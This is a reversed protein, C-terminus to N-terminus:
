FYPQRYHHPQKTILSDRTLGQASDTENAHHKTGRGVEGVGQGLFSNKAPLGPDTM